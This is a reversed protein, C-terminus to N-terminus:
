RYFVCNLKKDQMLHNIHRKLFLIVYREHHLIRDDSSRNRVGACCTRIWGYRGGTKLNWRPDRM